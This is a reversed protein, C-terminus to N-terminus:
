NAKLLITAVTGEKTKPDLDTILISLEKKFATKIIELRDQVNKIGTSKMKLQSKTKQMQSQARGIGNDTVIISLGAKSEKFDINLFGKESKYRLGHWISNEVLPQILMPPIQYQELDISDSCNITFDFHEKFRDHELNLYLTLIELEKSLAIFDNQSYNLVARMLKSFDALYKNAAREDQQAIYVNVSNLSNFIFHPNMQNRLSKLTLLQNNKQKQKNSRFVFFIITGVLLLSIVLFIMVTQQSKLSEDKIIQEKQLLQITKEDIERDKELLSIKNETNQIIDNKALILESKQAELLKFSDMLVHYEKDLAKSKQLDGKEEYAKSLTKYFNRKAESNSQSKILPASQNLVEIAKDDEGEEILVEAMETSNLIAMESNGVSNNFDIAQEQIEKQKRKDKANRYLNSLSNMSSNTLDVSNSNVAKYNAEIFLNEAAVNAGKKEEIKGLGITASIVGMSNDAQESLALAKEFYFKASVNNNLSFYTEAIKLQLNITKAPKGNTQSVLKEGKLWQQIAQEPNNTKLYSDGLLDCTIIANNVDNLYTYIQNAKKLNNIASTYNQLSINFEGLIKHALAEESKYGSNIAVALNEEVIKLSKSLSDNFISKAYILQKSVEKASKSVPQVALSISDNDSPRAS